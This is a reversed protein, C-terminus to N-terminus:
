QLDERCVLFVVAEGGSLRERLCGNLRPLSDVIARYADQDATRLVVALTDQACSIEVETDPLVETPLRLLLRWRQGPLSRGARVGDAIDRLLAEILSEPTSDFRGREISQRFLRLLDPPLSHEVLRADGGRRQQSDHDLNGENDQGGQRGQRLAEDFRQAAQSRPGATVGVDPPGPRSSDVSSM